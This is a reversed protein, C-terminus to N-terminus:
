LKVARITFARRWYYQNDDKDTPIYYFSEGNLAKEIRKLMKSGAQKYEVREFTEYTVVKSVERVVYGRSDIGKEVSKWSVKGSTTKVREARYWQPKDFKVPKLNEDYSICTPNGYYMARRRLEYWVDPNDTRVMTVKDRKLPSRDNKHLKLIGDFDVYLSDYWTNKYGYPDGAFDVLSKVMERMRRGAFTRRDANKCIISYTDDWPLGIRSHLFAKLPQSRGWPKYRNDYDPRIKSPLSEPDARNIRARTWLRPYSRRNSEHSETILYRMDKRM